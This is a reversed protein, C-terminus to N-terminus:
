RYLGEVWKEYEVQRVAEFGALVEECRRVLVEYRRAGIGGYDARNVLSRENDRVLKLMSRPDMVMKVLRDYSGVPESEGSEYKRWQNPGIGLVHSMGACSLGYMERMKKYRNKM